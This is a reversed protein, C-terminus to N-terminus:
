CQLFWFCAACSASLALLLCLWFYDCGFTAQFRPPMSRASRGEAGTERSVARETCEAKRRVQKRWGLRRARGNFAVQRDGDRAGLGSRPAEAGGGIGGSRTDSDSDARPRVGPGPGWGACYGASPPRCSSPETSPGHSRDEDGASMRLARVKMDVRFCHAPSVLFARTLGGGARCASHPGGSLSPAPTVRATKRTRCRSRGGATAPVAQAAAPQRPRQLDRRPGSKGCPLMQLFLCAMISTDALSHPVPWFLRILQAHSTRRRCRPSNGPGGSHDEHAGPLADAAQRGPGPWRPSAREDAVPTRTPHVRIRAPSPTRRVPRADASRAVNGPRVRAAPGDPVEANRHETLAGPGSEAGRLSHSPNARWESGSAQM